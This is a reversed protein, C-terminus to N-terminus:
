FAAIGKNSYRQLSQSCSKSANTVASRLASHGDHRPALRTLRHDVGPITPAELPLAFTAMGMVPPQPAPPAWQAQREPWLQAGAESGGSRISVGSGMSGRSGRSGRSGKSGKSGRAEIYERSSTFAIVSLTISMAFASSTSTSNLPPSRDAVRNALEFMVALM